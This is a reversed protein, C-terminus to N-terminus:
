LKLVTLGIRERKRKEMLKRIVQTYTMMQIMKIKRLEQGLAPDVPIMM